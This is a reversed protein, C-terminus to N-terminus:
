GTGPPAPPAYMPAEVPSRGRGRMLLLIVVVVAVAVLLGVGVVVLIFTDSDGSYRYDTLELTMFPTSTDGWHSNTKVWNGVDSSYWFVEYNGSEHMATIKLCTFTGAETTVQEEASAVSFFYNETYYINANEDVLDDVWTTLATSVNTTENWEDGTGTEGEVFGTMPPPSYTSVDHSEMRTTVEESLIEMTFNTWTYVDEKVTAMTGDVMYMHGDFVMEVSMGLYDDTEGYMSGTLKLVSVDFSKSGITLSDHEVFELRYGGSVSIGEYSTGGEYVWYDGDSYDLARAPGAFLSLVSVLAVACTLVSRASWM